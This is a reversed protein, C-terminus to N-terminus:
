CVQVVFPLIVNLKSISLSSFYSLADQAEENLAKFQQNHLSSVTALIGEFATIEFQSDHRIDNNGAEHYGHSDQGKGEISTSNGVNFHHVPTLSLSLRLFCHTLYTQLCIKFYSLFTDCPPGFALVYFKLILLVIDIITFM